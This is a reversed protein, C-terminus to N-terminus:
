RGANWGRRSMIAGGASPQLRHEVGNKVFDPPKPLALVQEEVRILKRNVGGSFKDTSRYKRTQFHYWREVISFPRDELGGVFDYVPGHGSREAPERKALWECYGIISRWLVAAEKDVHNPVSIYTLGNEPEFQAVLGEKLESATPNRFVVRV